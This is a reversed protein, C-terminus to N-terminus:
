IFHSPPDALKRELWAQATSIDNFIKLPVLNRKGVNLMYIAFQLTAMNGPNIIAMAKIGELPESTMADKFNSDFTVDNQGHIMVGHSRSGVIERVRAIYDKISDLTFNAGKSIRVHLIDSELSLDFLSTNNTQFRKSTM